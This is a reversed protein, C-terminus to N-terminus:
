KPFVDNLLDLLHDSNGVLSSVVERADESENELSYKSLIKQLTTIDNYMDHALTVLNDIDEKREDDIEDDIEKRIKDDEACCYPCQNKKNHWINHKKCEVLDQDNKINWVSKKEEKTSKELDKEFEELEKEIQDEEKQKDKEDKIPMPKIKTKYKKHKNKKKYEDISLKHTIKKYEVHEIRIKDKIEKVFIKWSLLSPSEECYEMEIDLTSVRIYRGCPTKIRAEGSINKGSILLSIDNNDNIFEDDTHSFVNMSSTSGHSHIVYQTSLSGNKDDINDVSTGTVNQYPIKMDTFIFTNDKQEGVLYALWEIDGFIKMLVKMKWTVLPNLVVEVKRDVVSCEKIYDIDSSWVNKPCTSFGVGYVNKYDNHPYYDSYFSRKDKIKVKKDDKKTKKKRRWFM